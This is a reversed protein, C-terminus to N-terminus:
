YSLTGDMSQYRSELKDKESLQKEAALRERLDLNKKIEDQAKMREEREYVIRNVIETVRNELRGQFDNQM